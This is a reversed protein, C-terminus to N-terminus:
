QDHDRSATISAAVKLTGRLFAITSHVPALLLPASSASIRRHDPRGYSPNIDLNLRNACPHVRGARRLAGSSGSGGQTVGPLVRPSCLSDANGRYASVLALRLSTQTPGFATM